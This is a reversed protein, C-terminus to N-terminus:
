AGGPKRRVGGDSERNASELKVHRQWRPSLKLNALDIQGSETAAQQLIDLAVVIKEVSERRKIAEERPMQRAVLYEEFFAGIYQARTSAPIIETPRFGVLSREILGYSALALSIGHLSITPDVSDLNHASDFVWRAAIMDAAFVWDASSMAPPNAGEGAAKARSMDLAAMRALAVAITFRKQFVGLMSLAPHYAQPPTGVTSSGPKGERLLQDLSRAFGAVLDPSAAIVERTDDIKSSMSVPLVGPPSVIKWSMVTVKLMQYVFDMLSADVILVAYDPESLIDGPVDSPTVPTTGLLVTRKMPEELVMQISVLERALMEVFFPNEFPGPRISELLAETRRYRERESEEPYSFASGKPYIKGNCIEGDRERQHALELANQLPDGNVLPEKVGLAQAIREQVAHLRRRARALPANEVDSLTTGTDIRITGVDSRRVKELYSVIRNALITLRKDLGEDSEHTVFHYGFAPVKPDAATLGYMAQIMGVQIGEWDASHGEGKTNFVVFLAKNSRATWALENLVNVSPDQTDILFVILESRKIAASLPGRWSKNGSEEGSGLSLWEIEADGYAVGPQLIEADFTVALGHKTLLGDLRVVQNRFRGRYCLLVDIDTM